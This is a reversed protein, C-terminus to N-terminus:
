EVPISRHDPACGMGRDSTNHRQVLGARQSGAARHRLRLVPRLWHDPCRVPGHRRYALALTNRDGARLANSFSPEGPNGSLPVPNGDILLTYNAASGGRTNVADVPGVRFSANFRQLFDNIAIGYAPFAAQRHQDLATRAARRRQETASKGAKEALYADCLPAIAPDHRAQVARLNALDNALSALNAERAQEKVTELQANVAAFQDSIDRVRDCQTNHAAIAHEVDGTHEAHRVTRVDKGRAPARSTGPRVEM